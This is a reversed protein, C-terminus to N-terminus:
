FGYKHVTSNLHKFRISIGCFYVKVDTVYHMFDRLSNMCLSQLQFTMITSVSNYFRKMKRPLAPNPLKGKKNAALFIEIVRGYYINMLTDKAKDMQRMIAM